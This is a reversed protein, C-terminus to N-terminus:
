KEEKDEKDEKIGEEEDSGVEGSNIKEIRDKLKAIEKSPLGKEALILYFVEDKVGNSKAKEYSTKIESDSVDDINLTVLNDSILSVQQASAILSFLLSFCFIPIGRKLNM